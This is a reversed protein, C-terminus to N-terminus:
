VMLAANVPVTLLVDVTDEVVKSRTAPLLEAVALVVTLAEVSTDIVFVPGAVAGCFPM